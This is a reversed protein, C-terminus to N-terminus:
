TVMQHVTVPVESSSYVQASQAPSPLHWTSLYAPCQSLWLSCEQQWDQNDLVCRVPRDPVIDFLSIRRKRKQSNSQRIFHKQAHSAVQTPTRTPVYIRSIGRWDGQGCIATNM